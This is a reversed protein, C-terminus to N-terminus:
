TDLGYVYGYGYGIWVRDMGYGYASGMCMRVLMGALEDLVPLVPQHGLLPMYVLHPINTCVHSLDFLSALIHTHTYTYAYPYPNVHSFRLNCILEHIYYLSILCFYIQM